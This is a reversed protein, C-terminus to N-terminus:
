HADRRKGMVYDFVRELIWGPKNVSTNLSGQWGALDRAWGRVPGYRDSHEFELLVSQEEVRKKALAETDDSRGRRLLRGVAIDHRCWLSLVITDPPLLEVQGRSRPLGDLIVPPTFAGIAGLFAARFLEEDALEGRSLGAPDVRRAIDGTSMIPWGTLESLGLALTTKGAGPLGTIAVVEPM